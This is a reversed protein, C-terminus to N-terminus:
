DARYDIQFSLLTLSGVSAVAKEDYRFKAYTNLTVYAFIPPGSTERVVPRAVSGDERVDVYFSVSGGIGSIVMASMLRTAEKGQQEMNWRVQAQAVAPTSNVVKKTGLDSSDLVETLLRADQGELVRAALRPFTSLKLDRVGPALNQAVHWM